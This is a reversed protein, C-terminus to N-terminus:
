CFWSLWIFTNTVIFISPWVQLLLMGTQYCMCYIVTFKSSWAWGWLPCLQELQFYLFVFGFLGWKAAQWCSLWWTRGQKLNRSKYEADGAPAEPVSAKRATSPTTTCGESPVWHLWCASFTNLVYGTPDPRCLCPNSERFIDITNMLVM